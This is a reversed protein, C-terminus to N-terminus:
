AGARGSRSRTTALPRPPVCDRRSIAPSSNSSARHPVGPAHPRTVGSALSATPRCSWGCRCSTASAPAPRRGSVSRGSSGSCTQVHHGVEHALVYAQAFDGPARFRTHLDHFFSLDLYVKRDGPCYFPGVASQASGCASHVADRFLVTTTRQYRGGLLQEWTQQADEMVVDVFDVLREEEPSTSVPESTGVPSDTPSPSPNTGVLSLFDVGTFLSLLLLLVFGGAGIPVMGIGGGARHGRRDEINGRGRPTWKM